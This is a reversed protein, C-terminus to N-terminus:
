GKGGKTVKEMSYQGQRDLIMNSTLRGNMSFLPQYRLVSLCLINQKVNSSGKMEIYGAEPVIVMSLYVM